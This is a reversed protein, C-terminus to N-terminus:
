AAVVEAIPAAAAEVPAAASKAAPMATAVQEKQQSMMGSVLLTFGMLVMVLGGLGQGIMLFTHNSVLTNIVTDVTASAADSALKGPISAIEKPMGTVDHWLSMINTSGIDNWGPLNSATIQPPNLPNHIVELLYQYTNPIKSADALQRLADTIVQDNAAENGVATPYNKLRNVANQATSLYATYAGNTYTTWPQFNAGKGSLSYAENLNTIPNLASALSYQKHANLNIQALGVSNHTGAQYRAAGANVRGGSEAMVIAVMTTLSQGSFGALHALLAIVDPSLTISTNTTMIQGHALAYHNNRNAM